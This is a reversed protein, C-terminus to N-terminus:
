RNRLSPPLAVTLTNLEFLEDRLSEMAQISNYTNTFSREDPLKRCVACQIADVSSRQIRQWVLRLYVGMVDPGIHDHIWACASRTLSERTSRQGCSCCVFPSEANDNQEKRDTDRQRNMKRVNGKIRQTVTNHTPGKAVVQRLKDMTHTRTFVHVSAASLRIARTIVHVSASRVQLAWAFRLM